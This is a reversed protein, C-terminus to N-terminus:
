GKYWTGLSSIHFGSTSCTVSQSVPWVNINTLNWCSSQPLRAGTPESPLGSKFSQYISQLRYFLVLRHSPASYQLCIPCANTDPFCQAGLLLLYGLHYFYGSFLFHGPSTSLSDEQAHPLGQSHVLHWSVHSFAPSPSLSNWIFDKLNPTLTPSDHALPLLLSLWIGQYNIAQPSMSHSLSKVPFCSLHAHVGLFPTNITGTGDHWYIVATCFHLVILLLHLLESIRLAM